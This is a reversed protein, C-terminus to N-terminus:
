ETCPGLGILGNNYQDLTAALSIFLTRLTSNGKLSGIYNPTNTPTNFLTYAQNYAAQVEPTMTAGNLLNLQAAIFQKALIYYANGGPALQLIQYYTKGSFFFPTNEGNPLQAWTDDYPAPGKKSHTKWYGQTLTCGNVCPVHVDITWSAEGSDTGESGNPNLSTFSAKNTFEYEGCDPYVIELTYTFSTPTSNACIQGM